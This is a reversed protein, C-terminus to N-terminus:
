SKKKKLASKGVEIFAPAEKYGSATHILNGEGDVFLFTPYARIKYKKALEPGEGKEMDMTVNIFGENYFDAVNNLTFVDKAMQICPRCWETYADLFILKNEKKAKALLAKWDGNEFSIKRTNIEKEKATSLSSNAKAMLRAPSKLMESVNTFSLQDGNKDYFVYVPYMLMALRPAFKKGEDSNMNIKIPIVNKQFFTVISDITFVSDETKAVMANSPNNQVDVFIIKGTKEAEVMAQDFTLNKFEIRAQASVSSFAVLLIISLAMMKTASYKLNMKM